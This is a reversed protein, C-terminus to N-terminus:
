IGLTSAVSGAKGGWSQGEGATGLGAGQSQHGEMAAAWLEVIDASLGKRHSQSVETHRWPNKAATYNTNAGPMLPLLSGAM